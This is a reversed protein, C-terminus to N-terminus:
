PAGTGTSQNPHSNPADSRFHCDCVAGAGSPLSTATEAVLWIFHRRMKPGNRQLVIRKNRGAGASKAFDALLGEFMEKCVANSVNWM